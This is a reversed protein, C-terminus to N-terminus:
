SHEFIAIRHSHWSVVKQKSPFIGHIFRIILSTDLLRNVTSNLIIRFWIRVGLTGFRVHFLIKGDM